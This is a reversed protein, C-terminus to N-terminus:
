FGGQSTQWDDAEWTAIISDDYEMPMQCDRHDAAFIEPSAHDPDDVDVGEECAMCDLSLGAAQRHVELHDWSDGIIADLDAETYTAGAVLLGGPAWPSGDDARRWNEGPWAALRVRETCVSNRGLMRVPRQVEIEAVYEVGGPCFRHLVPTEILTTAM